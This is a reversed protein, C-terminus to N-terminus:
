WMQQSATYFWCEEIEDEGDADDAVQHCYVEGNLMEGDDIRHCAAGGFFM